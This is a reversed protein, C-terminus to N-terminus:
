RNGGGGDGDAADDTEDAQYYRVHHPKQHPGIVSLEEQCRNQTTGNKQYPGVHQRPIDDRGCLNGDTDDGRNQPTRKEQDQQRATAFGIKLLGHCFAM